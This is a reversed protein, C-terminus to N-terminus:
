HPLPIGWGLANLRHRRLVRRTPPPVPINLARGLAVSRALPADDFEPRLNIWKSPSCSVTARLLDEPSRDGYKAMDDKTLVFLQVGRRLLEPAKVVEVKDVRVRTNSVWENSSQCSMAGEYCKGVFGTSSFTQIYANTDVLSHFFSEPTHGSSQLPIAIAIVGPEGEYGSTSVDFDAEFGKLGYAAAVVYLDTAYVLPKPRYEKDSLCPEIFGGEHCPLSHGRFLFSQPCPETGLSFKMKPDFNM